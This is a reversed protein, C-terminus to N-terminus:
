EKRQVIESQPTLHQTALWDKHDSRQGDKFAALEEAGREFPQGAENIAAICGDSNRIMGTGPERFYGPPLGETAKRELEAEEHGAAANRRAIVEPDSSSCGPADDVLDPDHLM